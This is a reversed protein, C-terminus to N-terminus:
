EIILHNKIITELKSLVEDMHDLVEGNSFRYTTIGVDRLTKDRFDDQEKRGHHVSGDVEIVVSCQPIWFDAIWGYLIAQRKVSVGLKKARVREWLAEEAPTQKRRMQSAFQKKGDAALKISRLGVRNIIKSM